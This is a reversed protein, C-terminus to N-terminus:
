TMGIKSKLISLFSKGYHSCYYNYTEKLGEKFPTEAKWGLLKLAKSPDGCSRAVEGLRAERYIPKLELGSVELIAEAIKNVSIAEGSALNIIEGNLGKTQIAKVLGGAMDNVCIYDRMQSGDGNIIPPKGKLLNTIFIAILAGKVGYTQRPGYTNFGRTITIEPKGFTSAYSLCYREAAYKSAAYPSRADCLDTEKLKGKLKTGYVEATSQYVFKQVSSESRVAELLNMTGRVNTEYFDLPERISEDVNILAALHLVADVDKVAKVCQRYDRIDGHVWSVENERHALKGPKEKDFVVIVANGLDLLRDVVHSGIFGSGGTVLVRM